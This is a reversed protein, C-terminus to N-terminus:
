LKFNHDLIVDGLFFRSLINYKLNFAYYLGINPIFLNEKHIPVIGMLLKSIFRWNNKDNEMSSLSHDAEREVVEILPSINELVGHTPSQIPELAPRYV